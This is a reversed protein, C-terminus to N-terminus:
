VGLERYVGLTRDVMGTFTFHQKVRSQATVGFATAQDRDDLMSVIAEALAGPERAQVLLGTVEDEIAECIGGVDTAVIPMGLSMAELVSYSFSEAWSPNVFLDVGSLIPAVDKVEGILRVAESVEREEIRAEMKDREPGDGVIVLSVGPHSRLVSPMADILTEAGKGPRLLTVSAIVPGRSRLQEIAPPVTSQSFSETSSQVEVGNYVVRIRSRPGISKALREEWKCVCLVLSTLPALVREVVRYVFRKWKHEQYGAFAYGHPTYVVPTRPRVVRAIRAVAGAKSSHAHILNPRIRRVVAAFKIASKLDRFPSISRVMELPVVEVDLDARQYEPPGCITIQHGREALAASLRVVHNYVGGDRPQAVM